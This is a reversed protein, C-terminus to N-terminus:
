IPGTRLMLSHFIAFVFFGADVRRSKRFNDPMPAATPAAVSAPACFGASAADRDFLDTDAVPFGRM